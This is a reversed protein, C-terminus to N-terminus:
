LASSEVDSARGRQGVGINIRILRKIYAPRRGKQRSMEEMAGSTHQRNGHTHKATPSSERSDFGHTVNWRGVSNSVGQEKPSACPPPRLMMPPVAVSVSVLTYELM